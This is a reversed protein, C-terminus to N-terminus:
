GHALRAKDTEDETNLKNPSLIVTICALLSPTM